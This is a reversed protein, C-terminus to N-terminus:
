LIACRRCTYPLLIASTLKQSDYSPLSSCYLNLNSKSCVVYVTTPMVEITGEICKVNRKENKRVNRNRQKKLKMLCDVVNEKSFKAFNSKM